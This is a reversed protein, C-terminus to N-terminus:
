EKNMDLENIWLGHLNCLGRATFKGYDCNQIEMQASDEPCLYKRKIYKKDQSIAEIFMIYHDKQMPHEISSVRIVKNEGDMVMVPVHKEQMEEKCTHEELKVMPLSCCVLTGEGGNIVEIINGCINCKYLELRETM